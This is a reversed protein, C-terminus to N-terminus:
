RPASGKDDHVAIVKAARGHHGQRGHVKLVTGEWGEPDDMMERTLAENGVQGPGLKYEKGEFEARVVGAVKGSPGPHFEVSTITWDQEDGWFKSKYGENVSGEYPITVVGEFGRQAAETASMTEVVKLNPHLGAVSEQIERNEWFDKDIAKTRGVRDVRYLRIEYEVDDPIKSNSNLYGSGVSQPLYTSTSQRSRGPLLGLLVDFPGAKQKFVVEGMAVITEDSTVHALGGLKHTYEIQQGTRVSTRPSWVTTGKPGIVIYASSGDYKATTARDDILRVKRHDDLDEPHVLKLHLRDEFRPPNHSKAGWILIPARKDGGHYLRYLYLPRNPNILPAYMEVPAVDQGHVVHAKYVYANGTAIVQRTRGAGYHSATPDGGTWSAAGNRLSHDLNQPVRAGSAVEQRIHAIIADRSAQTLQGDSNYRLEAMLEPKNRLSYVMSFRGIHVDVHPGVRNADHFVITMPYTGPRMIWSRGGLGNKRFLDKRPAEQIVHHGRTIVSRPHKLLQKMALGAAAEGMAEPIPAGSKFGKYTRWVFKATRALAVHRGRLLGAPGPSLMEYVPKAAILSPEIISLSLM